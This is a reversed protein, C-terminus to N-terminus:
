REEAQLLTAMEGIDFFHGAAPVYTSQELRVRWGEIKRARDAAIADNGICAAHLCSAWDELKYTLRDCVGKRDCLEIYNEGTIIKERHGPQPTPKSTTASSATFRKIGGSDQHDVEPDTAPTQEAQTSQDPDVNSTNESAKKHLTNGMGTALGVSGSNIDGGSGLYIYIVLLLSAAIGATAAHRRFFPIIRASKPQSFILSERINNWSTAPPEYEMAQLKERLGSRDLELAEQLNNWGDQPTSEEFQNLREQWNM